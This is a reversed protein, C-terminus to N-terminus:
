RTAGQRSSRSVPAQTGAQGRRYVFAPGRAADDIRRMQLDQMSTFTGQVRQLTLFAITFVVESTALREEAETLRAQSSLLRELANAAGEGRGGAVGQQWRQIEIGHERGAARMAAARAAMERYAVNYENLTVEAEAVITALTARGQNEIQRTELRRRDLRARLDDGMLPVELRLGVVGGLRGTNDLTDNLAGGWRWADLDRGGYNGELVLDLKPLGEIQAQGERLVAARHQMFMQQVEPRLAVAREVVTQLPVAEYVVLPADNPVLAGAGATEFRPENVLGRIRAEANRIAAFSRLLDAERLALETQARSLLLQDADLASRGELRGVIGHISAAARERQLHM